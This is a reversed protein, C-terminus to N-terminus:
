LARSHFCLELNEIKKEFNKSKKQFNQFKQNKLFDCFGWNKDLHCAFVHTRFTLDLRTWRVYFWQIELLVAFKLPGWFSVNKPFNPIKPTKRNKPNKLNGCFMYPQIWQCTEIHVEFLATKRTTQVEFQRIQVSVKIKLPIQNEFIKSFIWKKGIKAEMGM